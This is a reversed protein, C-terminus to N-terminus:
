RPAQLEEPDEANSLVRLRQVANSVIPVREALHTLWEVTESGGRVGKAEIPMQAIRASVEARSKALREPNAALAAALRRKEAFDRESLVKGFSRLGAIQFEHKKFLRYIEKVRDVDINRGLTYSEFRGEMALLATEALCAYATGKPLGIDYGIEIEGPILVEGSEIVAVDPRLAAEKEGIDPPRAVDCIVAGPKCTSIDLIRQGFASTATVVLDCDAALDRPRLAITVKTGPTEGEITRKLDILKEPEISVLVVDHIAQALLRSCVAGISGTAGIIMARGKTLQTAGMKVVAQKAAELTAAVTLSNGSTIAISAEHAVTEGADGVVSTFAGLGMLRCGRREAMKAAENLRDYTFRPTHRMMQRPTAGLAFLYGEIRQGTTPSRGGAIRGVYMPKMYAAVEEVVRDPLRKTWKFDPHKHVFSVDLPHIVFAFRNVNEEDEQLYRISPSWSIEAMLNLYEDETLPSTPDQRLAGLVAEIVAASHRAAGGGPELSPMLTVLISAKRARFEAVDDETASPVVITKQRLDIPAFHRIAPADGAIVDAWRFHTTARHVHSPGAPSIKDLPADKLAELTPADATGLTQLSGVGPVDPLGFFIEPDYYDVHPTLRGLAHALGAHNLGPVMLVRKQSFIGPEARQALVVSWRELGSRVGGGDVIPTQRATAALDRGTHYRRHAEGLELDLPIGDLGIADVRGDHGRILARARELDRQCGRWLVKARRDGLAAIFDQDEGGLHVVLCRKM